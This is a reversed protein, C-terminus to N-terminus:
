KKGRFIYFFGKAPNYLNGKDEITYYYVGEPLQKGYYNTGDWKIINAEQQYVVSGSRSFVMFSLSTTGTAIVEFYDNVNDGNPTVYEPLNEFNLKTTSIAPELNIPLSFEAFNTNPITINEVRLKILHPGGQPFTHYISPYDGMDGTFANGAPRIGDIEWYFRMDGISDPHNVSFNFASRMVRKLTALEGLNLDPGVRFFAPNANITYQETLAEGDVSYLLTVTFESNTTVTYTKEPHLSNSTGGDGFTWSISTAAEPLHSVFKVNSLNAPDSTPLLKYTFLLQPEQALLAVNVLFMIIVLSIRQM